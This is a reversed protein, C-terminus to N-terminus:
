TMAKKSRHAAVDAYHMMAGSAHRHVSKALLLLAGPKVPAGLTYYSAQCNKAKYEASAYVSELADDWTSGAGSGDANRLSAMRTAMEDPSPARKILVQYLRTVFGSRDSLSPNGKFEQSSAIAAM